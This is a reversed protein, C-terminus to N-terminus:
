DRCPAAGQRLPLRRAGGRAGKAAARRAARRVQSRPRAPPCAPPRASLCPELSPDARVLARPPRASRVRRAWACPPAHHATCPPQACKHGARRLLACVAETSAVQARVARLPASRARACPAASPACRSRARAAHGRPQAREWGRAKNTFILVRSRQRAGSATDSAVLRTLFALLKRPKKHEATVQVTQAVSSSVRTALLEAAGVAGDATADRAGGAAGTPLARGRVPEAAAGQDDASPKRNVRVFLARHTWGKAAEVLRGPMTSSFLSVALGPAARRAGVGFAGPAGGAVGGRQEAVRALIQDIQEHFGQALMKDAEDVVLAVLGGLDVDAPARAQADTAAARAAKKRRKAAKASEGDAPRAAAAADAASPRGTGDSILDLVRGPTGVLVDCGTALAALQEARPVGGYVAHARLRVPKAAKRAVLAIQTALERTPALILAVPQQSLSRVAAARARASGGGGDTALSTPTAGRGTAHARALVPLVYALTKGSGTEALCLADLGALLAPWAQAQIATPAGISRMADAFLPPLAADDSSRVPRPCLHADEGRVLVGVARRLEVLEAAKLTLPEAWLSRPRRAAPAATQARPPSAAREPWPPVGRPRAVALGVGDEDEDDSMEARLRKMTRKRTLLTKAKKQAFSSM